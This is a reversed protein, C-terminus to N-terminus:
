TQRGVEHGNESAYIVKVGDGFHKRVLDVFATVGPMRARNEARKAELPACDERLADLVDPQM